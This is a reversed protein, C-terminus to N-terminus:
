SAIGILGISCDIKTEHFLYSGRQKNRNLGGNSTLYKIYRRQDPKSEIFSPAKLFYKKRGCIKKSAKGQQVDLENVQNSLM